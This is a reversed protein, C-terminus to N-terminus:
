RLMSANVLLQITNFNLLMIITGVVADVVALVRRSHFELDESLLQDERRRGHLLCIVTVLACEGNNTRFDDIIPDEARGEELYAREDQVIIDTAHADSLESLKAINGEVPSVIDCAILEIYIWLAWSAIGKILVNM